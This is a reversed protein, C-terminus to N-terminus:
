FVVSHLYRKTITTLIADHDTWYPSYFELQPLNYQKTRDMWFVHDIHGGQIHTARDMMKRFGMKTLSTTIGNTPNKASCINFDGTILTPRGVEIVQKLTESTDPISHNSSRYVSISDIRGIKM